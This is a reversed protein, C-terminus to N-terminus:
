ALLSKSKSFYRNLADRQEIVSRPVAMPYFPDDRDAKVDIRKNSAKQNRISQFSFLIETITRRAM